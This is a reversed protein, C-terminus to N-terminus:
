QGLYIQESFGRGSSRFLDKTKIAWNCTQIWLQAEHTNADNSSLGRQDCLQASAELAAVDRKRVEKFISSFGALSTRAHLMRDTFSAWNSLGLFATVEVGSSQERTVDDESMRATIENRSADIGRLYDNLDAILLATANAFAVTTSAVHSKKEASCQCGNDDDKALSQQTASSVLRAPADSLEPVMIVPSLQHTLSLFDADTGTRLSHRIVAGEKTLQTFDIGESRSTGRLIFPLTMLGSPTLFIELTDGLRTGVFEARASKSQGASDLWIQDVSGSLSNDNVSSIRVQLASGDWLGSVQQGAQLAEAPTVATAATVAISILIAAILYRMAYFPAAV